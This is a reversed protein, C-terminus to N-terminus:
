LIFDDDDDYDDDSNGGGASEDDDHGDDGDGGGAGDDDDNKHSLATVTKTRKLLIQKFCKAFIYVVLAGSGVRKHHYQLARVDCSVFYLLYTM